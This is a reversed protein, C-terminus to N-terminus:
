QVGGAAAHIDELMTTSHLSQPAFGSTELVREVEGIRNRYAPFEVVTEPGHHIQPNIPFPVQALAELLAELRRPDVRISVALLEGENTSLNFGSAAPNLWVSM